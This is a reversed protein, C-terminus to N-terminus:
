QLLSLAQTWFTAQGVDCDFILHYTELSDDVKAANDKALRWGNWKQWKLPLYTTCSNM